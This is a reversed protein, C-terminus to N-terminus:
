RPIRVRHESYDGAEAGTHCAACHAPSGVAKRPWVSPGIEAHKRRFYTTETIRLPTQGPPISASIKQARRNSSRDAANAELFALIDQATHADVSANDGFHRDLGGMIRRWSRAPLLGPQYPMHCSSCEAQWAGHSLRPVTSGARDQETAAAPLATSLLVLLVTHRLTSM